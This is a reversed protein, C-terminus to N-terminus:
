VMGMSRFIWCKLRGDHEDLLVFEALLAEHIIDLQVQYSSGHTLELDM